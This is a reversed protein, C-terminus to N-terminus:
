IVTDEMFEMTMDIVQSVTREMAIMSMGKKVGGNEVNRKRKGM